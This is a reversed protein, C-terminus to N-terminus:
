YLITAFNNATRVSFQKCNM